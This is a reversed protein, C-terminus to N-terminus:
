KPQSGGNFEFSLEDPTFRTAWLAQAKQGGADRTKRQPIYFDWVTNGASNIELIRGNNTESILVNGNRLAHQSGYITSYLSNDSAGPYEWNIGLTEPNIELVRSHGGNRIDGRNDFLMINGNALVEPDHQMRWSGRGAWKIVEANFDLIAIVDLNRLSILLDGEEAMPLAAAKQTDLYEISNTHLLDGRPHRPNAYMLLSRFRSDQIAQLVSVTKLEEGNPTLAVITDEVFPVAIRDLGPWPTDHISHLQAYITGDPAISLNHHAKKLFSWILKSDKDVKAIGFGWPTQWATTIVMLLDGNPFLHPYTVSLPTDGLNLGDLRDGRLDAAPIYWEHVINGDMDALPVPHDIGLTAYVTYGNLAKEANYSFVGTKEDRVNPNSFDYPSIPKAGMMLDDETQRQKRQTFLAEAASFSDSLFKYPPIEFRFIAAGGVLGMFLLALVTILLFLKNM